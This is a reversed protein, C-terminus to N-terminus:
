STSHKMLVIRRSGIIMWFNMSAGCEDLYEMWKTVKMWTCKTEDSMVIKSNTEDM